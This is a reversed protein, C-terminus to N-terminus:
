AAVYALSIETDKGKILGSPSSRASGQVKEPDDPEFEPHIGNSQANSRPVYGPLEDMLVKEM